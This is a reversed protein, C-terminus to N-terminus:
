NEKGSDDEEGTGRQGDAAKRRKVLIWEACSELCVTLNGNIIKEKVV